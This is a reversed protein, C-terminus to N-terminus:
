WPVWTNHGLKKEDGDPPAMGRLADYTTAKLNAM